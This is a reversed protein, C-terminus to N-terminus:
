PRSRFHYLRRLRQQPGGRVVWNFLKARLKPNPRRFYLAAFLAANFALWGGFLTSLISMIPTRSSDGGTFLHKLPLGTGLEWLGIASMSCVHPKESFLLKGGFSQNLKIKQSTRRPCESARRRSKKPHM